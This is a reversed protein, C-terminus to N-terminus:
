PGKGQSELLFHKKRMFFPDILCLDVAHTVQEM